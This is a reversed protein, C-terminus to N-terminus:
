KRQAKMEGGALNLVLGTVVGSDDRQFDIVADLEKCFFHTESEAYFPRVTVGTIKVFLQYEDRTVEIIQSPNVQYSGVYKDLLDGPLSLEVRPKAQQPGPAPLERIWINRYRVPNGHDQLSLPLKQPHAKYSLRETWHTPGMIEVHDQTLVGNHLVTITAPHLLEGDGGFRPAHFVIDYTQWQGPPRCANVQPPYQGYIASAQGDAYTENQYSDLVQVEYKGMLFVGSNGREQSTGHIEAPTAFEVHLQCDGFNRLTRIDGSGRACETYGDRVVWRATRGYMTRWQSLDKGDFLVIADSPPQGPQELTSFTGPTIVEPRPRKTDHIRWKQSFALGAGIVMVLFISIMLYSRAFNRM